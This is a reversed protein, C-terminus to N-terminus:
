SVDVRRVQWRGNAGKRWGHIELAVGAERLVPTAAAEAIKAARHAVNTATTVQVGLLGREPHVALVDLLGYLDRRRRARPVWHEVVQVLPWGEERLLALTRQTPSVSM